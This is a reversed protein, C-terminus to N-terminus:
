RRRIQSWKRPYKSDTPAIKEYVPIRRMADGVQVDHVQLLKLGFKEFSAPSETVTRMPLFLGGEAVFAASIEGFADLPAVARGTVVDFKERYAADHAIAEAREHIMRVDIRLLAVCERVFEIYKSNSDLVTVRLDERTIALCLGPFGAGTGIDLVSSNSKILPSLTLSDLFHRSWCEERPVRTLNRTENVRYLFSEYADFSDLQAENLSVGIREANSKLLSRNM